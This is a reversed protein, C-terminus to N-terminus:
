PSPATLSDPVSVTLRHSHASPSYSHARLVRGRMRGEPVKEWPLLVCGALEREGQPSPRLWGIGEGM